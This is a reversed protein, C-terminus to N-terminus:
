LGSGFPYLPNTSDDPAAPDQERVAEMSRPLEFPLRGHAQARGLAVDLVAADSAGFNALIVDTMPLVESLVAPRDLFIALMTPVQAENARALADYAPDGPEFNLRGEKYRSGFFHNPHLMQSPTDARVIAFDAEAVDDVVQLGAASAAAADMGHLWVKQGQGFPLVGDENRLLVQSERQLRDAKAIDSERGIAATAAAPDVYPNEFLGLQFKPVMVRIVSQDLRATDVEGAELAELLPGVDDTGGFQDIGANLGKVYRQRVTLDEVGWPTAIDPARQPEADTPNMCRENCDRTIAWDSLIIGEYGLDGRLLGKLLQASFGPGVPELTEGNLQTERLIPYAPMIGASKAQLAGEFAAIHQDLYDGPEAFRGYYNHAEFGEPQAGYGVWHKVVTMVGDSQLGQDSGQFAEVYAGGLESGLEASSGFTGSGRPWRPETLLDLQPSLAMHIGLARYERRAIEGFERVLAPDRLAAFGLLEPWQTTGTGAEAAGLVYSFHNRPDTSLTLPVGLRGAAAVEQAANNQEALQAPALTLRTIFSTVHKDNVLTGLEDLDYSLARGLQGDRGPMTSHMLTGVKEAQTMRGALDAARDAPSLRWDEYPSLRGDGDADRFRLGDVPVAERVRLGLEPQDPQQGAHACGALGIASSLLLACKKLSAPTM